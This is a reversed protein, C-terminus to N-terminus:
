IQRCRHMSRDPMVRRFRCCRQTIGRTSVKTEESSKDNDAKNKDEKSCGGLLGLMACLFAISLARPKMKM